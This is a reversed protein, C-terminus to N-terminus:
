VVYQVAQGGTIEVWFVIALSQDLQPVIGAVEKWFPSIEDIGIWDMQSILCTSYLKIM